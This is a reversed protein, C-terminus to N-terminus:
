HAKFFVTLAAGTICLLIGLGQVPLLRENLVVYGIMVGFVPALCFALTMVTSIHGSKLGAYLFIIGLCGSLLGGGVAVLSISKVGANKLQGWFPYSLFLLLSLSFATRIATGMIPSLDGLTIGRKELFSGISWCIATLIAWFEARMMMRETYYRYPKNKKASYWTKGTRALFVTKAYKSIPGCM